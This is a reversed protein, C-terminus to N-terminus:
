CIAFAPSPFYLQGIYPLSGHIKLTAPLQLGAVLELVFAYAEIPLM